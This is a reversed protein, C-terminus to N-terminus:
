ESDKAEAKTSGLFRLRLQPILRTMLPSNQSFALNIQSVLSSSNKSDLDDARLAIAAWEMDGSGANGLYSRRYEKWGETERLGPLPVFSNRAVLTGDIVAGDIEGRDLADELSPFSDFLNAKTQEMAPSVIGVRRYSILRDLLEQNTSSRIAGIRRPRALWQDVNPLPTSQGHRPVFLETRFSLYGNSFRIGNRERADAKTLTGIFMDIDHRKLASEWNEFQRVPILEVCLRGSTPESDAATACRENWAQGNSLASLMREVYDRCSHEDYVIATTEDRSVKLCGEVLAYAIAVDLGDAKGREDLRSFSSDQELNTGVRITHTAKIRQELTSFVYFSNFSSWKSLLDDDSVGSAIPIPAVRWLYTGPRLEKDTEPPIRTTNDAPDSAVFRKPGNQCGLYDLTQNCPISQDDGLRRIEIGYGQHRAGDSGAFEWALTVHDSVVTLNRSSLRVHPIIQQISKSKEANLARTLEEKLTADKERQIRLELDDRKVELWLDYTYSAGLVALATVLVTVFVAIDIFRADRAQTSITPIVRRWKTKNLTVM